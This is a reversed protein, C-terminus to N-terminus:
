FLRSLNARTRCSRFGRVKSLVCYGPITARARLHSWLRASSGAVPEVTSTSGIFFLGRDIEEKERVAVLTGRGMRRLLVGSLEPTARLASLREDVIVAVRGGAPVRRKAIITEPLCVFLVCLFTTSFKRLPQINM